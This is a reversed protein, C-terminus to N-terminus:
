SQDGPIIPLDSTDGSAYRTISEAQRIVAALDAEFSDPALAAIGAPPVDRIATALHADVADLEAAGAAAIQDAQAIRAALTDSLDPAAPRRAPEGREAERNTKRAGHFLGIILAQVGVVILGVAVWIM